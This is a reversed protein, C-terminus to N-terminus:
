KRDSSSHRMSKIYQQMVFSCSDCLLPFWDESRQDYAFDMLDKFETIHEAKVFEVMEGILAYRESASPRLAISIDLGGHSEIEAISYQHKEPNDLHAFYRVMGRLDHCRKPIPCNLPALIECIQEYSKKGDFSLVIHWHPKKVEGTPNTDFEHLPSCAWAIHQDDLIEKWNEPASDPYIVAAWTRSRDDGSKGNSKKQAM